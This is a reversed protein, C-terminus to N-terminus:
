NHHSNNYEIVQRKAEEIGESKELADRVNTQAEQLLNIVNGVDQGAGDRDQRALDLRGLKEYSQARSARIRANK